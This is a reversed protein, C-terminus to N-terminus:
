KKEGEQDKKKEPYHCACSCTITVGRDHMSGTCPFMKETNEGAENATRIKKMCTFLNGDLRSSCLDYSLPTAETTNTGESAISDLHGLTEHLAMMHGNFACDAEDTTVALEAARAVAELHVIYRALTHGPFIGRSGGRAVEEIMKWAKDSIDSTHIPSAKHESM